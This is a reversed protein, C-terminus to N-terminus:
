ITEPWFIFIGHFFGSNGGFIIFIGLTVGGLDFFLKGGCSCTYNLWNADFGVGLLEWDFLILWFGVIVLVFKDWYPTFPTELGIRDLYGHDNFRNIILNNMMNIIINVM